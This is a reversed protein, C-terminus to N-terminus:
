VCRDRGIFTSLCVPMGSFCCRNRAVLRVLLTPPAPEGDPGAAPPLALPAQSSAPRHELMRRRAAAARDELGSHLAMVHESLCQDMVEDPRDLMVFVLDFRSLMPGSLRLNEALAKGRNYHGGAPNAAALVATRAPLSAVLGAKAM